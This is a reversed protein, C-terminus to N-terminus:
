GGGPGRPATGDTSVDPGQKLIGKRRAYELLASQLQRRGRHLRSMVTGLPISLASAIEKYSMEEVLAMIVVARYEEPLAAIATQITEDPVGAMLAEEPDAPRHGQLFAEEVLKEYVGEIKDFDVAEPRARSARYRNIFTNRLIRFLWAKIHTGPQYSDFFRFARLYTEQVLDEADKRNRTLNLALNFLADLYPLAVEEFEATRDHPPGKAL